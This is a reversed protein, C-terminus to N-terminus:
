VRVGGPRSTVAGASEPVVAHPRGLSRCFDAFAEATTFAPEFGLQERMRTTDVGRGYTLLSLQEPSFDSVRTQRLVSGLRGVALAPLAVSPKGLRRVAQSLMLVGDGAVNFTGARGTVAALRLVALLDDEHLFQLRPDFGLVTPIVPMRFYGTMASVVRPGIMNAMRLLTVEVDPRRHLERVGVGAVPGGAVRLRHHERVVHHGLGLHPRHHATALHPPHPLAPRHCHHSQHRDHTHQWVLPVRQGDQHKFANSEITRGDSCELGAKTAYGSFDPKLATEVGM